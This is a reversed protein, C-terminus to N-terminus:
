RLVAFDHSHLYYLRYKITWWVFCNNKLFWHIIIMCIRPIYLENLITMQENSNQLQQCHGKGLVVQEGSSDVGANVLLPRVRLWWAYSLLVVINIVQIDICKWFTVSQPMYLGGNGLSMIWLCIIFYTGIVLGSSDRVNFKAIIYILVVYQSWSLCPMVNNNIFDSLCCYELWM